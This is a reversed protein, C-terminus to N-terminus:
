TQSPEDTGLDCIVWRLAWMVILSAIFISLGTVPDNEMAM